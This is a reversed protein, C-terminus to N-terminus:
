AAAEARARQLREVDARLWFKAGRIGPLEHTPRLGEKAVLRHWAQIRIGLLDAAERSTLIEMASLRVM